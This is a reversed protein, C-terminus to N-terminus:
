VTFSFYLMGSEPPEGEASLSAWVSVWLRELCLGEQLSIGKFLSGGEQCLDGSLSGGSLSGGSLCGQWPCFSCPVLSLFGRGGLLIHSVAAPCSTVDYLSGGAREGTSLIVSM